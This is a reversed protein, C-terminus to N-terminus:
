FRRWQQHQYSSTEGGTIKLSNISLGGIKAFCRTSINNQPTKPDSYNTSLTARLKKTPDTNQSISNLDLITSTSLNSDVASHEYKMMERGNFIANITKAGNQSQLLVSTSNIKQEVTRNPFEPTALLSHKPDFDQDQSERLAKIAIQLQSKTRPLEGLLRCFDRNNSEEFKNLPPYFFQHISNAAKEKILFGESSEFFLKSGISFSATGIIMLGLDVIVPIVETPKM